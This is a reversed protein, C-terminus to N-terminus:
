ENEKFLTFMHQIKSFYSVFPLAPENRYHLTERIRTAEGIRRTTNGEEQYHSRLALM